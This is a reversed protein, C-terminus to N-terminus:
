HNATPPRFTVCETVTACATPVQSKRTGYLTRSGTDFTLGQISPTLSYALSGNDGTTGAVDRECLWRCPYTKDSIRPQM